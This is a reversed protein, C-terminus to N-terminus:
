VCDCRGKGKYLLNIPERLWMGCIKNVQAAESERQETLNGFTTRYGDNDISTIGGTGGAGGSADFASLTDVIRCECMKVKDTMSEPASEAKGNSKEDIIATADIVYYNYQAETLKGHAQEKYFTYNSYAM